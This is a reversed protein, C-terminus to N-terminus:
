DYKCSFFGMWSRKITALSDPCSSVGNGELRLHTTFCHQKTTDELNNCQWQEYINIPNRIYGIIPTGTKLGLILIISHSRTLSKKHSLHAAELCPPFGSQFQHRKPGWLEARKSSCQCCTVGFITRCFLWFTLKM